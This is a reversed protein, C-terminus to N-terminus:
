SPKDYDKQGELYPSANKRPVANPQQFSQEVPKISCFNPDTVIADWTFFRCIQPFLAM